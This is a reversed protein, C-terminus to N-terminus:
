PPHETAPPPTRAARSLSETLSLLHSAYQFRTFVLWINASSRVVRLSLILLACFAAVAGAALGILCLVAPCSFYRIRALVCSYVWGGLFVM